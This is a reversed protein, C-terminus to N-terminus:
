YLPCVSHNESLTNPTKSNMKARTHRHMSPCSHIATWWDRMEPMIISPHAPLLSKQSPSSHMHRSTCFHTHMTYQLRPEDQTHTHKHPTHICTGQTHTFIWVGASHDLSQHVYALWPIQVPTTGAHLVSLCLSSTETLLAMSHLWSIQVIDWLGFM